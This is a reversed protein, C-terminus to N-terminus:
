NAASYRIVGNSRSKDHIIKGVTLLDALIIKLESHSTQDIFDALIEVESAPGNRRLHKIINFGVAALENRGGGGFCKHMDTEWRNMIAVASQITALNIPRITADEGFHIAMALKQVHVNKRVQFEILKPNKNIHRASLTAPNEWWDRFWEWAEPAYTVEGFTKSLKLLHSNIRGVAAIQTTDHRPILAKEFRNGEGFLLITRALFGSSIIANRSLALLRDPQTGGIISTCTRRIKEVGRGITERLYPGGNFTTLLFDVTKDSERTFISTIEDLIFIISNHEYKGDDRPNIPRFYHTRTSSATKEVLREFSTSDPAVPFLMPPEKGLLIAEAVRDANKDPKYHHASLLKKVEDTLLGKGVGPPAVFIMYMNPFIPKTDAGGLWVRRQLAAGVLFYYAADIFHEPSTYDRAM